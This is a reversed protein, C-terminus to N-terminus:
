SGAEPERPIFEPGPHYSVPGPGSGPSPTMPNGASIGHVLRQEGASHRTHAIPPRLHLSYVVSRSM